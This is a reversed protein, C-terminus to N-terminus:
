AVVGRGVLQCFTAVKAARSSRKMGRDARRARLFDTLGAPDPACGIETALKASAVLYESLEWRSWSQEAAYERLFKIGCESLDGLTEADLTSSLIRNATHINM